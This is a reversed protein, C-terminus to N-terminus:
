RVSEVAIAIKIATSGNFKESEINLNTRQNKQSFSIAFFDFLLVSRPIM